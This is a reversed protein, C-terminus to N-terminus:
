PGGPGRPTVPGPGPSGAEVGDWGPYGLFGERRLVQVLTGLRQEAPEVREGFRERLLAAAEAVTRRGDLLLWAVSGVEDLRIRRASLHFLLRDVLGRIGRTSPPPRLLVVREETEEWAARRVPRLELVNVGELARELRRRGM